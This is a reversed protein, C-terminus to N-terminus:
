QTQLFFGRCPLIPMTGISDSMVVNYYAIRSRRRRHAYDHRDKEDSERSWRRTTRHRHALHGTIGPAEDPKFVAFSM